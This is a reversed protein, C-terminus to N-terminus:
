VDQKTKNRLMAKAIRPRKHNWIFKLITRIRHFIAHTIELSQMLDTSQKSYYLWKLLILEKLGPPISHREM